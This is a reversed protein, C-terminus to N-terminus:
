LTCEELEINALGWDISGRESGIKMATVPDWPADSESRAHHMHFICLPNTFITQKFGAAVLRIVSYSDMHWRQQTNEWLGGVAFFADRAALIFDGAGNTHVYQATPNSSPLDNVATGLVVDVSGHVLHAQFTQVAAFSLIHKNVVKEIGVGSYDYRDTRYFNDQKLRRQAFEEIMADSLLIDPNTTLVYEGLARRIGANKGHFELVPRSTNLTGHVENPVTIIKMSLHKPPTIAGALPKYPLPNWEVVILELLNAHQKVQHDLSRVFTNLRLLFNEGYDDNRGVVVVSIYPNTMM